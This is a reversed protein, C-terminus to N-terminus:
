PYPTTILERCVIRLSGYSLATCEHVVQSSHALRMALITQLGPDEKYRVPGPCLLFGLRLARTPVHYM